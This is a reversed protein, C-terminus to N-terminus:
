GVYKNRSLLDNLEGSGRKQKASDTFYDIDKEQVLELFVDAVQPDFHSGRCRIVEEVVDSLSWGNKYSRTSLMTDISDCLTIIRAEILIEDEKLQFPYGRGNYHEHHQSIIHAVKEMGKVKEVIKMGILTHNKIVSFEEETLRGPKQLINESISLKGIDHLLAGKKLDDLEEESLGLKQGIDVAYKSVTASHGLLSNDRADIIQSLTFILQENNHKLMESFETLQSVQKEKEKSFLNMNYRMLFLPIVFGILGYVYFVKYMVALVIGILAILLYSVTVWDLSERIITFFRTNSAFAVVLSITFLDVVVFTSMTLLLPGLNDTNLLNHADVHLLDWVVHSVIIVNVTQSINFIIKYIDTVLPFLLISTGYFISFIFLELPNFLIIAAIIIAAGSSMTFAQGNASFVSLRLGEFLCGFIIFPALTSLSFSFDEKLILIFFILTIIVHSYIYIKAKIPLVM